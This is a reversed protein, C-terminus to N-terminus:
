QLATLRLEHEVDVVLLAAEGDQDETRSWASQRPCRRRSGETKLARNTEGALNRFDYEIEVTREAYRVSRGARTISFASENVQIHDTNTAVHPSAFAREM